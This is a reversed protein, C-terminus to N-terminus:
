LELAYHLQDVEAGDPWRYSEQRTFHFGNRLIAGRSSLNDARHSVVIRRLGQERAWAIRPEYLKQSHGQGRLEARLYSQVMVAQEPQGNDIMVGTLGVIQSGLYVGFLAGNPNRLRVLWEDQSLQSERAFNSAYNGPAQALAELRIAKYDELDLESLRRVAIEEAM